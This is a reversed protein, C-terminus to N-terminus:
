VCLAHHLCSDGKKGTINSCTKVFFNKWKKAHTSKRRTKNTVNIACIEIEKEIGTGRM